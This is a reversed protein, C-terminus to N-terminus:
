CSLTSVTLSFTCIDVVTPATFYCRLRYMFIICRTLVLYLNSFVAIFNINILNVIKQKMSGDNGYFSLPVKHSNEYGGPGEEEIETVM